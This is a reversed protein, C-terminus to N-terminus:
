KLRELCQEYFIEALTVNGNKEAESALDELKIAQDERVEEPSMNIEKEPKNHSQLRDWNLKFYLDIKYKVIVNKLLSKYEPSLISSIVILSAQSNALVKDPFHTVVDLM